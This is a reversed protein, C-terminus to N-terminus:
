VTLIGDKTKQIILIQEEKGTLANVYVLVEAGQQNECLFEYTLIENLGESPIIALDSTIVEYLM